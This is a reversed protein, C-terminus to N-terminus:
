SFPPFPSPYHRFFLSCVEAQQQTLVTDTQISAHDVFYLYVRLSPDISVKCALNMKPVSDDFFDKEPVSSPLSQHFFRPTHKNSFKFSHYCEDFCVQVAFAPPSFSAGRESYVQWKKTCAELQIQDLYLM